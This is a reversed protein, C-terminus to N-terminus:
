PSSTYIRSDWETAYRFSMSLVRSGDSASEFELDECLYEGSPLGAAVDTPANTVSVVQAKSYVLGVQAFDPRFAAGRHYTARYVFIPDPRFYSDTGKETVITALEQLAADPTTAIYDALTMTGSLTQRLEDREASSGLAAITSSYNPHETLPVQSVGCRWIHEENVPTEVISSGGSYTVILESLPSDGLQSIQQPYGAVGSEASKTSIAAHTGVWRRVVETTGGPTYSSSQQLEQISVGDLASSM